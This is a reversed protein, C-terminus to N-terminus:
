PRHALASASAPESNLIRLQLEGDLNRPEAALAKPLPSLSPSFGPLFLAEAKRNGAHAASPSREPPELEFSRCTEVDLGLPPPRARCLSALVALAAQCRPEGTGWVGSMGRVGQGELCCGSGTGCGSNRLSSIRLRLEQRDGDHVM